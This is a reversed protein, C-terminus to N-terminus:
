PFGYFRGEEAELYFVPFTDLQFYAPVRPQVWLQVQREPKALSRLEPLLAGTWPGATLVLSRAAYVGETTRVRVRTDNEIPEWGLVTERGHVEAGRALAGNM